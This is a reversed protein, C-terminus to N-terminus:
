GLLWAEMQAFSGRRFRELELGECGEPHDTVLFGDIGLDLAAMDETANNGVMVCDEARKGTDALIDRFYAPNPKCHRSNEYTTIHDFDASTLGVWRLRTEVAVPPFLPNTALVLSCDRQRLARLLGSRDPRSTLVERAGDFENAYFANFVPELEERSRGTLRTFVDWFVNCNLDRGDNEVMAGTGAWVAKVLTDRDFGLPLAKRVLRGFYSHIFDDQRFPLLTGDLDFLVTSRNDLIM